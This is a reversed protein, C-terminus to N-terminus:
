RGASRLAGAFRHSSYKACPSSPPGRLHPHQTPVSLVRLADRTAPPARTGRDAASRRWQRSSCTSCSASVVSSAPCAPTRTGSTTVAPRPASPSANSTVLWGLRVGSSSAVGSSTLSSSSSLSNRCTARNCSASMECPLSLTPLTITTSSSGISTSRDAAVSPAGSEGEIDVDGLQKDRTADEDALFPRQPLGHRRSPRSPRARAATGAARPASVADAPDRGCGRPRNPSAGRRRPPPWRHRRAPSRGGAGRGARVDAGVAVERPWGGM